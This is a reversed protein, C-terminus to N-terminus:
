EVKELIKKIDDAIVSQKVMVADQKVGIVRVDSKLTSVAERNENIKETHTTIAEYNGDIQMEKEKRWSGYSFIFGSITILIIVASGITIWTQMINQKAAKGNQKVVPQLAKGLKEIATSLTESHDEKFAELEHTDMLNDDAM